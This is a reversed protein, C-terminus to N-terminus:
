KFIKKAIGSGFGKGAQVFFTVAVILMLGIVIPLWWYDCVDVKFVSYLFNCIKFDKLAKRLGDGISNLFAGMDPGNSFGSRSGIATYQGIANTITVSVADSTISDDSLVIELVESSHPQSNLVPSVSELAMGYTSILASQAQNVFANQIAAYYIM